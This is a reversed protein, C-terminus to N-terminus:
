LTRLLQMSQAPISPLGEICFTNERVIYKCRQRAYHNAQAVLKYLRQTFLLYENHEDQRKLQQLTTQFIMTFTNKCLARRSKNIGIPEYFNLRERYLENSEM